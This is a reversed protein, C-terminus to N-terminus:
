TLTLAKVRYTGVAGPKAVAIKKVKETTGGSERLLADYVEECAKTTHPKTVQNVVQNLAESMDHGLSKLENTVREKLSSVGRLQTVGKALRAIQIAVERITKYANEITDRVITM